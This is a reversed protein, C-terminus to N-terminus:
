ALMAVVVSAATGVCLGILAIAPADRYDSRTKLKAAPRV